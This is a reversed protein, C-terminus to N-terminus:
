MNNFNKFQTDFEPISSSHINNDLVPSNSVTTLNDKVKNYFHVNDISNSSKDATMASSTGLSSLFAAVREELPSSDHSFESIDLKTSPPSTKIGNSENKSTDCEEKISQVNSM